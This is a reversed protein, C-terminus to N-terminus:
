KTETQSRLAARMRKLAACRRHDLECGVYHTSGMDHHEIIDIESQLAAELDTMRKSLWAKENEALLCRSELATIRDVCFQLQRPSASEYEDVGFKLHYDLTQQSM